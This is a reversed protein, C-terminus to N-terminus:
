PEEETQPSLVLEEKAMSVLEDEEVVASSL